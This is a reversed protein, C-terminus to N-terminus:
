LLAHCGVGTNKGPSDGHVSSGPSSCDMTDYLTPCSQAVLCLEASSSWLFLCSTLFDFVILPLFSKKKLLLLLAERRLDERSLGKSQLSILGTLGLPFWDWINMPLVSASAGINQGDSTFFQSMPFSRSAPFSQLCSSFSIVPHSPQIADSVWHVHTQAFEPLHYHVPLRAHQLGHPWLSDSVVSRSFQVSPKGPPETTFLRGTLAPSVPKVGSRPLDWISHLLLAQEGCINLQCELAQFSCSSLGRAVIVSAQMGLARAGCHCFGSCGLWLLTGALSFGECCCPGLM